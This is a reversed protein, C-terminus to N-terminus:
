TLSLITTHDHLGTFIFSETDTLDYIIFLTHITVPESIYKLLSFTFMNQINMYSFWLQLSFM